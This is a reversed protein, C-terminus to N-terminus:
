RSQTPTPTPAERAKRLKENVCAELKADFAPGSEGPFMRSCEAMYVSAKLIEQIAQGTRATGQQYCKGGPTTCDAMTANTKAVQHALENNQWVMVGLLGVFLILLGLLALNIQSARRRAEEASHVDTRLAQSEAILDTLSKRLAAAPDDVAMMEGLTLNPPNPNM